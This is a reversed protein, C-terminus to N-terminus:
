PTKPPEALVDNIHEALHEAGTRSLGIATVVSRDGRRLRILWIQGPPKGRSSASGTDIEVTVPHM